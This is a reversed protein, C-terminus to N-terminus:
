AAVERMAGIALTLFEDLGVGAKECELINERRVARAFAKDKMKKKVSKAELGDYGTPRMLAAAHILGTVTEACRLGFDLASEPMAGTMEGNHAAIARVAEEPLKGALMAASELGHREPQDKTQPYDLDHVLGALGWVDPDQGLRDALARMVAESQRAHLIMHPEPNQAEILELAQGRTIM